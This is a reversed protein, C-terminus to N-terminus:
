AMRAYWPPGVAVYSAPDPDSSELEVAEVAAAAALPISLHPPSVQLDAGLRRAMRVRNQSSKKSSQAPGLPMLCTLKALFEQPKDHMATYVLLCVFSVSWMVRLIVCM